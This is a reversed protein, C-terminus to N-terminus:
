AKDETALSCTVEKGSIERVGKRHLDIEIELM